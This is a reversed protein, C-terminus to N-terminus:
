IAGYTGRIIYQDIYRQVLKLCEPRREHESGGNSDGGSSNSSNDISSDRTDQGRERFAKEIVM